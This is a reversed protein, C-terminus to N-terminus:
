KRVLVMQCATTYSDTFLCTEALDDSPFIGGIAFDSTGDAVSAFLSEYDMDTIEINIGLQDALAHALDMDLGTLTGSEDYYVYPEFGSNTAVHLTKGSNETKGSSSSNDATDESTHDPTESKRAEKKIYRKTIEQLTGNEELLALAQNLQSALERQDAGLCISYEEWVFAEDLVALNNYIECYDDTLSSDMIICDLLGEQLDKVATDLSDYRKIVSPEEEGSPLELDTAYLDAQSDRLVGIRKGPLDGLSFVTGPIDAKEKGCASLVFASCLLFIGFLFTRSFRTHKFNM